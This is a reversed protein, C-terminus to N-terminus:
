AIQNKGKIVVLSGLHNAFHHTSRHEGAFAAAFFFINGAEPPSHLLPLLFSHM